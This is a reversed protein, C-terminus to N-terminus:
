GGFGALNGPFLSFLGGNEPRKHICKYLVRRSEGEVLGGRPLNPSIYVPNGEEGGSRDVM